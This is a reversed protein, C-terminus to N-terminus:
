VGVIMILLPNFDFYPAFENYFYEALDYSIVGTIAQLRKVDELWVCVRWGQFM